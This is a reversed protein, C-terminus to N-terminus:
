KPINCSWIPAALIEGIFQSAEQDKGKKDKAAYSIM